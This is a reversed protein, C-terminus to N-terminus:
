AEDLLGMGEDVQGSYVLMMGLSAIADCELDADGLRRAAAIAELYQTRQTAFETGSLAKDLVLWGRAGEHQSAELLRRARAIWGGHVAWDGFVWGRFWGVTRAARAAALFEGETRYAAYAEEYAAVAGGYDGEAHAARGSQELAQGDRDEM